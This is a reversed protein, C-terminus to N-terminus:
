SASKMTGGCGRPYVTENVKGKPQTSPEGADAPISGHAADCGMELPLNGRMRPSLGARRLRNVVGQRTGGCGRPYVWAECHRRERWLPEGADAPISGPRCGRPPARCQNGRM